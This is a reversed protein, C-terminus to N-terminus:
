GVRRLRQWPQDSSVDVTELGDGVAPGLIALLTAAGGLAFSAHVMGMPIFVADGPELTKKEEALWQEVRGAVVYIVEDQSPHLHFDHGAGASIVGELVTLNTSSTTPPSSLFRLLGWPVEMGASTSKLNFMGIM